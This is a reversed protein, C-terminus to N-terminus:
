EHSGTRTMQLLQLAPGAIGVFLYVPNQAFSKRIRGQVVPLNLADAGAIAGAVFGLNDGEGIFFWM